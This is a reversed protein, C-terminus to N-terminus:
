VHARGIEKEAKELALMVEPFSQVNGHDTVAIAKHGWRIATNVLEAPTIIADMQSMNTHLHLEVRKEESNDLREEKSIKMISKFSVFPENDFKDTMPKGLIAVHTGPKLAGMFGIETPPMGRKAYVGSSGDSIGVTVTTRDGARNPKESIEFVTGLYVTSGSHKSIDSIPTPEEIAFEEGFIISPSSTDYINSGRLFRTESLNRSVGTDESIGARREFDYQPDRARAEAEETARRQRAEEIARERSEREAREMIHIKREEIVAARQAAGRGERVCVRREVGYRSRLINALIIETNAGKVFEVGLESYPLEVSITEGDDFYEAGSFFGHTVAGCSAAETAIESFKDISFLESAFHPLIKFTQAEYLARCDDEVEYILYPDEPTDFSIDVEVRIPDRSFRVKVNKGRELMYLKDDEPQYRKFYDLFSKEAM